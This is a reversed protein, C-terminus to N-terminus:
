LYWHIPLGIRRKAFLLLFKETSNLCYEARLFFVYGQVRSFLGSIGERLRLAVCDFVLVPIVSLRGWTKEMFRLAGEARAVKLNFKEKRDM